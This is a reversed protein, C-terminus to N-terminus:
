WYTRRMILVGTRMFRKVCGDGRSNLVIYTGRLVICRLTSTVFRLRVPSIESVPLCAPQELVMRGALLFHKRRSKVTQTRFLCVHRGPFSGTPYTRILKIPRICNQTCQQLSVKMRLCTPDSSCSVPQALFIM